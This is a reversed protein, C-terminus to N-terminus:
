LIAAPQLVHFGSRAASGALPLLAEKYGRSNRGAKLYTTIESQAKAEEYGLGM